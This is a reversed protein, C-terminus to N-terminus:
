NRGPLLRISAGVAITWNDGDVMSNVSGDIGQTTQYEVFRYMAQAYVSIWPLPYFALGGGLNINIGNELEADQVVIFNLGSDTSGNEIEARSWGLGAIVFPQIPTEVLYYKRLNLDLNEIDTDHSLASGTFDGDYETKDYTLLAEWSKWRYSISFGFGEETDLDPIIVADTPRFVAVDGDFHGLQGTETFRAGVWLGEASWPNLEVTRDSPVRIDGLATNATQLEVKPAEEQEVVITPMTSVKSTHTSSCAAVLVTVALALLSRVNSHPYHSGQM